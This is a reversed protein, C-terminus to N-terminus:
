GTNRLGQAIGSLTTSLANEIAESERKDAAAGTRKRRLLSIQLLSLPDVYPNRLAIASQLVPIDDLLQRHGRILLLSEVARQYEDILREALKVDAGLHRVYARAIDVDTKACVMEAKGLMDDVFPWASAMRQLRRLGARTAVEEGLATGVGLWGTLMLRIQTWGFGWPIARIGEIGAKAGPRYAPRSGFRANALEDIPTAMRFLEFLAENDYVFEHYVARSREAVRDMVQRFDEVEKVGATKRWDTFEHLLVGAATVELTREAVPLLGFQQSIIEGQETIKIRGRTTGPPLAALARYVPSGGGRGVSGGRGHFLTLEVGAEDFVEALSEQARYLAWSSAIMGADKSSDSYGIMVEQRRGRADLQRAYMDDALLTRMIDPAHELDELTEFLPVVSLRSMPNKRALDVLGVERALLLVKLLDDVSRTMSVIYTCAAAEGAEGQITQIARFTDIVRKTEDSLKRNRVLSGPKGSLHARLRATESKSKKAPLLEAVAATHMDAHDRVDMM